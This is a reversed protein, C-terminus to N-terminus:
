VIVKLFIINFIRGKELEGKVSISGGHTEVRKKRLSLGIGISKLNISNKM